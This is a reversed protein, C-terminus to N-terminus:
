VRAQPNDNGAGTPGRHGAIKQTAAELVQPALLQTMPKRGEVHHDPSTWGGVTGAIALKRALEQGPGPGQASSLRQGSPARNTAGGGTQGAGHRGPPRAATAASGNRGDSSRAPVEGRTGIRGWNSRRRRPPAGAGRRAARFSA